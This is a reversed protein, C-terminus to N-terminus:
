PSAPPQPPAAPPTGHPMGGMGGAPGGHPAGGGHQMMQQMHQQMMQHHAKEHEKMLQLQEAKLREREKDDKAALIKNSLEHMKLMHEQRQKLHQERMEESMMGGMMGETAQGQSAPHHKSAAEGALVPSCLSVAMLVAVSRNLRLKM